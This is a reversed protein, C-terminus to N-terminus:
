IHICTLLAVNRPRTESGASSNEIYGSAGPNTAYVGHIGSAGSGSALNQTKLAHSHPEVADGQASGLARESDVGRGSDLGRIFEGRLDPVNFTTSGNGSGYTTSIAAFLAAYTTRSVAAGNAALYGAPCSSQAFYNVLGTPQVFSGPQYSVCKWNGSGLSVFTAVDGAATTINTAGPLILSTGNHTLTLTGTFEIIRRIGAQVTGLSTITATGTVKAYDGTAAGIDTTAASSINAGIVNTPNALPGKDIWATNSSNRQKLSGATTDAWWMYPYTTSPASAGSNNGVLAQFNANIAARMAVGTNADANNIDYDQQSAFASLNCFCILITFFLTRFKNM